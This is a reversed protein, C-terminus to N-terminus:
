VNSVNMCQRCLESVLARLANGIPDTVYNLNVDNSDEVRRGGHWLNTDDFWTVGM